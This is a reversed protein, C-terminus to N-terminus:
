GKHQSGSIDTRSCATLLLFTSIHSISFATSRTQRDRQDEQPYDSARRNWRRWRSTVLTGTAEEYEVVGELLRLVPLFAPRPTAAPHLGRFREGKYLVTGREDGPEYVAYFENRTIANITDVNFLRAGFRKSNTRYGAANVADAIQEATQDQMRLEGIM